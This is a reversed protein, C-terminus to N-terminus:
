EGGFSLKFLMALEKEGEFFAVRYHTNGFLWGSQSVADREEVGQTMFWPTIEHVRRAPVDIHLNM